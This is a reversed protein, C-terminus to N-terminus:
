GVFQGVTLPSRDLVRISPASGIRRLGLVAGRDDGMKLNGGILRMAVSRVSLPPRDAEGGGHRPKRLTQNRVTWSFWTSLPRPTGDLAIYAFRAPIRSSLLRRAVESELLRLDGQRLSMPDPTQADPGDDHREPLM